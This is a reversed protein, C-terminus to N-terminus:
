IARRKIYKTCKVKELPPANRIQWKSLGTFESLPDKLNPVSCVQDYLVNGFFDVMAIRCPASDFHGHGTAACEVDISVFFEGSLNYPTNPPSIESHPSMAANAPGPYPPTTEHNPGGFHQHRPSPGGMEVIENGNHNHQQQAQHQTWRNVNQDTPPHLQVEMMRQHEYYPYGNHGNPGHHMHDYQGHGHPPHEMSGHHYGGMPGHPGQSVAYQGHPHHHHHHGYHSESQFEPPPSMEHSMGQNRPDNPHMGQGHAHDNPYNYHESHDPTFERAESSLAPSQECDDGPGTPGSLTSGDLLGSGDTSKSDEVVEQNVTIEKDQVEDRSEEEEEEEEGSDRVELEMKEIQAEVSEVHHDVQHDVQHDEQHDVHNDAQERAKIDRHKTAECKAKEIGSEKGHNRDSDDVGGVGHDYCQSVSHTSQGDDHDGHTAEELSAIRADIDHSIDVTGGIELKTTRVRRDQDDGKEEVSDISDERKRKTGRMKNSKGKAKPEKEKKNANQKMEQVNKRQYFLGRRRTNNHMFIAEPTSEAAGIMGPEGVSIVTVSPTSQQVIETYSKRHEGGNESDTGNTCQGM